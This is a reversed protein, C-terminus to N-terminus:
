DTINEVELEEIRTCFERAEPATVFIHDQTELNTEWLFRYECQYAFDKHKLFCQDGSDLGSLFSHMKGISLQGPANDDHLMTEDVPGLNRHVIRRPLYICPGEAGGKFGPIHHAICDAFRVTDNIRFGSDAGPFVNIHAVDHHMTGCLVYSDEGYTLYGKISQGSGIRHQHVVLGKGEQTDLRAEDTHKAFAKFSSLRLTGAEFFEDVYQRELYRYVYPQRLTWPRSLQTTIRQPPYNM